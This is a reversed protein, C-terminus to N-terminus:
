MIAMNITTMGMWIAMAIMMINETLSIFGLPVNSSGGVCACKLERKDIYVAKFVSVAGITGIFLAVPVSLWTLAGAVMLVGAAGEAFPYIYSYPVWRKALLDYNLFMTSFSEINQLKLLALVVMSFGIFWEAARVTFISGTIAYSAAMATLATMMFLAVVPRYSTAQPDAVPKGLFRRLDDYGGVRQGAIFIQPTTAVGHEAKFADTQERTTLHHDEVEFGSRKLLDKAKIGYPCTHHGMVMRYVIAKKSVTPHNAMDSM